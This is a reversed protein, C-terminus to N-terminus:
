VREYLSIGEEAISIFLPRIPGKLQVDTIVSASIAVQFDSAERIDYAMQWISQEHELGGCKQLLIAVDIDSDPSQENRAYSGFLVAELLNDGEQQKVRDLFDRLAEREEPSLTLAELAEAPKVM